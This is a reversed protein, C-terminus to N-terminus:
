NVGNYFVAVKAEQYPNESPLLLRKRVIDIIREENLCRTGESPIITVPVDGNMAVYNEGMAIGVTENLYIDRGVTESLYAERYLLEVLLSKPTNSDSYIVQVKAQAYSNKHLLLQKNVVEIVKDEQLSYTVGNAPLIIIPINEGAIGIGIELALFLVFCLCMFAPKQIRKLM